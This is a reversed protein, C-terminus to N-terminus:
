CDKCGLGLIGLIKEMSDIEPVILISGNIETQKTYLSTKLLVIDDEIVSSQALVTSVIAGAMDVAVEPPSPLLRLNTMVSIANLYSATLINGVEMLVSIGMEDFDGKSGPVLSTILNNASELSLVFLVTLEVDGYAKIYIGVMASEQEVLMEPVDQLPVLTAVPVDMDIKEGPLLTSLSTIANGVGINALEKLVDLRNSDIRAEDLSNM